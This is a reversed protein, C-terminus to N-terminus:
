KNDAMTNHVKSYRDLFNNLINTSSQEKIKGGVGFVQKCDVSRCARDEKSNATKRDGGNTFYKPKILEILDAVDDHNWIVAYHVCWLTDVIKAREKEDLLYFGKKRICCNNDNIATIWINGFKTSHELYQIHASHLIDFFGSSLVPRYLMGVKEYSEKIEALLKSLEKPTYIAM